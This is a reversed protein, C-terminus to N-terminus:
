FDRVRCSGLCQRGYVAKDLTFEQSEGYVTIDGALFITKEMDYTYGNKCVIDGDAAAVLRDPLPLNNKQNEEFARQMDPTFPFTIPKRNFGFFSFHQSDEEEVEFYM